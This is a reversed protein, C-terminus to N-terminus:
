RLVGGVTAGVSAGAAQVFVSFPVNLIFPLLRFFVHSLQACFPLHLLFIASSSPPPRTKSAHALDHAVLVLCPFKLSFPLLCFFVHSLHACFPLHLLFIASSSPPPRTKSAHQPWHPSNAAGDAAGDSAGDAAGDAAGDTAGEAAGDAAQVLVLIPFNLTFPTLRFFFHLHYAFFPLHLLLIAPLSPPPFTKEAHPLDHSLFV